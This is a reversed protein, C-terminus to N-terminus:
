GAIEGLPWEDRRRDTREVAIEGGNAAILSVVFAVRPRVIAAQKGIRRRGSGDRWARLGANEAGYGADHSGQLRHFDDLFQERDTLTQDTPQKKVVGQLRAEAREGILPIRVIRQTAAVGAVVVQGM